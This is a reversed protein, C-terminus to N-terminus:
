DAPPADGDGSSAAPAASTTQAAKKAAANAARAANAKALSAARRSAKEEATLTPAAAKKSARSRAPASPAAPTKAVTDDGIIGEDRFTKLFQDPVDHTDGPQLVVMSTGDHYVKQALIECKKAM